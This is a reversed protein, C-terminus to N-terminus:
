ILGIVLLADDDDNTAIDPLWLPRSQIRRRTKIGGGSQSEYKHVEVAVYVLLGQLAIMAASFGLGQVVLALPNM